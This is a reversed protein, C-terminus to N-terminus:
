SADRQGSRVGISVRWFDVWRRIEGLRMNTSHGAAVRYTVGDVNLRLHGRSWLGFSVGIDDTVDVDFVRTGDALSMTLRSDRLALEGRQWRWFGMGRVLRAPKTLERKRNNAQREWTGDEIADSEANRRAEPLAILATAVFAIAMAPGIWTQHAWGMYLFGLASAAGGVTLMRPRHREAVFEYPKVALIFVLLFPITLAEIM